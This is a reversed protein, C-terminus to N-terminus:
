AFFTLFILRVDTEFVFASILFSVCFAFCSRFVRALFTRREGTLSIGAGADVISSYSSGVFDSSVVSDETYGLIGKMENESAHRLTAM